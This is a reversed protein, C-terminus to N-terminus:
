IKSFKIVCYKNIFAHTDLPLNIFKFGFILLLISYYTLSFLTFFPHFIKCYSILYRGAM